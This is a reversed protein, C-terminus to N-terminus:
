EQNNQLEKLASWRFDGKTGCKCSEKNLMAGCGDCIGKCDDACLRKPPIMLLAEERLFEDLDFCDTATVYMGTEEDTLGEENSGEPEPYFGIPSVAQTLTNSFEMNVPELCRDCPCSFKLEMSGSLTYVEGTKDIRGKFSVADFSDTDEKFSFETEVELGEETIKEYFIKM